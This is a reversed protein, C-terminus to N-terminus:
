QGKSIIERIESTTLIRADRIKTKLIEVDGRNVKEELIQEKTQIEFGVRAGETEISAIINELTIENRYDCVFSRDINEVIKNWELKSTPDLLLKVGLAKFYINTFSFGFDLFEIISIELDLIKQLDANPISEIIRNLFGHIDNFKCALFICVNSILDCQDFPLLYQVSFSSVFFPALKLNLQIATSPVKLPFKLSRTKSLILNAICSLRNM